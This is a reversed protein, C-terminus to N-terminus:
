SERTDSPRRVLVTGIVAYLLGGIFSTLVNKTPVRDRVLVGAVADVIDALIGARLWLLGNQPSLALGLGLGVDRGGVSRLLASTSPPHEASGFWLEGPKQPAIVLWLGFAVRSLGFLRLLIADKVM